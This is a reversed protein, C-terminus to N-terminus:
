IHTRELIIYGFFWVVLAGSLAMLMKMMIKNPISKIDEIVTTNKKIRHDFDEVIRDYKKLQENRISWYNNLVSCGNRQQNDEIAEIRVFARGLSESHEQMKVDVEILKRLTSTIENFQEEHRDLKKDIRALSQLIMDEKEAM